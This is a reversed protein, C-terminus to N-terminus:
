HPGPCASLSALSRGGSTVCRRPTTRTHTNPRACRQQQTPHHPLPCVSHAGRQRLCAPRGVGCSGMPRPRVAESSAGGGWVGVGSSVVEESLCGRGLRLGTLVAGRPPGTRGLGPGCCGAASDLLSRLWVLHVLLAGPARVQPGGWSRESPGGM